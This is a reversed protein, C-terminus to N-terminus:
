EGAQSPRKNTWNRIVKSTERWVVFHHRCTFVGVLQLGSIHTNLTQTPTLILCPDTYKIQAWAQTQTHATQSDVHILMYRLQKNVRKRTMVCTHTLTHTCM